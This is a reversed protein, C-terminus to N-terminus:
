YRRSPESLLQEIQDLRSNQDNLRAEAAQLALITDNEQTRLQQERIRQAELAREMELFMETTLRAAQVRTLATRRQSRVGSLM